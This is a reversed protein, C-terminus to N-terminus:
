RHPRRRRCSLTRAPAVSMNPVVCPLQAPVIDLRESVDEGIRHLGNRCCPCVPDDIDVVM